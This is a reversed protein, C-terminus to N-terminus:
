KFTLGSTRDAAPGRDARVCSHGSQIMLPCVRTLDSQGSLALLSWRVAAFLVFLFVAERRDRRFEILKKPWLALRSRV